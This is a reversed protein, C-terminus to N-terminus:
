RGQGVYFGALLLAARVCTARSYTALSSPRGLRQHLQEFVQLTWMGPNKLPSWADFFIADPAPWDGALEDLFEGERFVWDVLLGDLEITTRGENLLADLSQRCDKLYGFRAEHDRAFALASATRDFSIIRLKGTLDRLAQAATLANAAAGMGIDWICLSDCEGFRERLKLGDVYLSRAEVEPGVIPHMVEGTQRCGVSSSGNEHQVLYYDDVSM